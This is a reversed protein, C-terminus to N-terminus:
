TLFKELIRIRSFLDRSQLFLFTLEEGFTIVDSNQIETKKMATLLRGNIKTGNMSNVDTFEYNYNLDNLSFFAHFKSISGHEIVIDNNASRGVTIKNPFGTDGKKMIRFIRSEMNVHVMQRFAERDAEGYSAITEFDKVPRGIRTQGSDVLFPYPHAKVFASKSLYKNGLWFTKIDQFNQDM